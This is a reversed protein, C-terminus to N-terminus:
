AASPVPMTPIMTRSGAAKGTGGVSDEAAGLGAFRGHAQAQELVDMPVFKAMVFTVGVGGFILALGSVAYIAIDM